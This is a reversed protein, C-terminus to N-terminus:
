PTPTNSGAAAVPLLALQDLLQCLFVNGTALESSRQKLEAAPQVWPGPVLEHGDHHLMQGLIDATLEPHFQLGIVRDAFVFAQQSCAQSSALSSAGPPLEFADGHWHLVTTPSALHRFLPHTQAAVTPQIPWFGIELAPNRFVTAGLVEAILQAGLCIGVVVKDAAIARRICEKEPRLWPYLEEEAVGMAGGLILLWDFETLAPFHPGPAHLHTFTCTHGHRSAWDLLVGPSEFAAHQLCHIRM